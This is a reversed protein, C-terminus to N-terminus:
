TTKLRAHATLTFFLGQAFAKMQRAPGTAPINGQIAAQVSHLDYSFLTSLTKHQRSVTVVVSDRAASSAPGSPRKCTIATTAQWRSFECSTPGFRIKQSIDNDQYNSGKITVVSKAESLEDAGYIEYPHPGDYSLFDTASNTNVGATVQILLGGGGGQSSRCSLSSDSTWTSTGCGTYSIRTKVSYSTHGMLGGHLYVVAAGTGPFNSLFTTPLPEFPMLIAPRLYTFAATVTGEHGATVIIQCSKQM